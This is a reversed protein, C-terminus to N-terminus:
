SKSSVIASSRCADQFIFTLGVPNKIKSKKQMTLGWRRVQPSSPRFHLYARVCSVVTSILLLLPIHAPSAVLCITGRLGSSWSLSGVMIAAWPFRPSARAKPCSVFHLPWESRDPDSPAPCSFYGGSGFCAPFQPFWLTQKLSTRRGGVAVDKYSQLLSVSLM